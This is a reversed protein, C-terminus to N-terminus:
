IENSKSANQIGSRKVLKVVLNVEWISSLVTRRSSKKPQLCHMAVMYLIINRACYFCMWKSFIYCLSYCQFTLQTSFMPNQYWKWSIITFNQIITFNHHFDLSCHALCSCNFSYMTRNSHKNVSKPVGFCSFEKCKLRCQLKTQFFTFLYGANSWAGGGGSIKRNSIM